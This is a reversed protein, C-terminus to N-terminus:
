PAQSTLHSSRYSTQRSNGPRTPKSKAAAAKNRHRIGRVDPVLRARNPSSHSAHPADSLPARWAGSCDRAQEWVASPARRAIGVWNVLQGRGPRGAAVLYGVSGRCSPAARCWSNGRTYPIFLAVNVAYAILFCRGSGRRRPALWWTCLLLTAAWVGNSLVGWWLLARATLVRALGHKYLIINTVAMALVMTVNLPRGAYGGGFLLGVVEPFAMLPALLFFGLGWSVLM